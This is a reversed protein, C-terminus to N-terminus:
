QLGDLAKAGLQKLHTARKSLHEETTHPTASDELHSRIRDYESQYNKMKQKELIEKRFAASKAMSKRGDIEDALRQVKGLQMKSFHQLSSKTNTKSFM